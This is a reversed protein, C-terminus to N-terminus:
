AFVIGIVLNRKEKTNHGCFAGPFNGAVKMCHFYENNNRRKIIWHNKRGLFLQDGNIHNKM